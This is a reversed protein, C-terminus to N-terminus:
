YFNWNDDDCIDACVHHIAEEKSNCVVFSLMAFALTVFIIMICEEMKLNIFKILKVKGFQIQCVM